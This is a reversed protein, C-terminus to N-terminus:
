QSPRLGTAIWVAKGSGKSNWFVSGGDPNGRRQAGRLSSTQPLRVSKGSKIAGMQLLRDTIHIDTKTRVLDSSRR